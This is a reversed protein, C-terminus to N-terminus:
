PGHVRSDENLTNSWHKGGRLFTFDRFGM